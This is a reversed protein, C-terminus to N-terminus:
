KQQMDILENYGSHIRIKNFKESHISNNMNQNNANFNNTNVMRKLYNSLQQIRQLIQLAITEAIGPKFHRAIFMVIGEEKMRPQLYKANTQLQLAYKDLGNGSMEEYNGFYLRKRKQRNM